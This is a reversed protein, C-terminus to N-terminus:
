PDQRLHETSLRRMARTELLWSAGLGFVLAWFFRGFGLLQLESISVVFSILPGLVLPGKTIEQLAQALIAIVALGVLATLLVIPIFETLDAAFAAFVGILVGAGGAVYAALYRVRKAGADPSAVLATAPLSLSFGMPGFVSGLVTGVGSIVSVRREPAPYGQSELFVLSPANAQLTIFVVIIPTATLIATLSIEPMTITVPLWAPDPMPGTESTLVAVVVGVLLAPLLPPIRNGLWARSLFYAVLTSGVLVTSSGLFTFTDQLFMLIAGALLGWVIPAPLLSALRHTVGALGLALVILGAVMTAGVLEPWTLEDGVAAVFILIFVNGTMVLPQRYVFALVFTVVSPVGYLVAIWSATESASLQLKTAADLPIALVAFFVAALSLGAVVPKLRHTSDRESLNNPSENATGGM